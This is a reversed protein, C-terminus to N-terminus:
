RSLCSMSSCRGLSISLLGLWFLQEHGLINAATAAANGAVVLGGLIVVQGGTSTLAELLQFIGAIRAKFRPSLGAIGKTVRSNASRQQSYSPESSAGIEAKM